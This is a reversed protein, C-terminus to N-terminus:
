TTPLAGPNLSQDFTDIAAKEDTIRKSLADLQGQSAGSAPAGLFQAIGLVDARIDDLEAKVATVFDIFTAKADAQNQLIQKIAGNDVHRNLADEILDEITAFPNPM